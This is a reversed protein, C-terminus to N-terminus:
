MTPKKKEAAMQKKEKPMSSVAMERICEWGDGKKRFVSMYTGHDTETGTSDANSWSGFETMYDGGPFLDIVKYTPTVGLSDKAIQEAIRDRVASKGSLPEKNSMYSVVDDSYYKVVGDADKAVESSAYADEMAQIQTTLAAM